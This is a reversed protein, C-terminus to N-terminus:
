CLNFCTGGDDSCGGGDNCDGDECDRFYAININTYHYGDATTEVIKKSYNESEFIIRMINYDGKLLLNLNVYISYLFINFFDLQLKSFNDAGLIYNM